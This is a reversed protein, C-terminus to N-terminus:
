IWATFASDRKPLGRATVERQSPRDLERLCIIQRKGVGVLPNRERERERVAAAAAGQQFLFDYLCRIWFSGQSELPYVCVCM